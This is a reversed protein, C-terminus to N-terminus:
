TNQIEFLHALMRLKFIASIIQPSLSNLYKYIDIMLFELYTQHISKDNADLLIINLNSTRDQQM